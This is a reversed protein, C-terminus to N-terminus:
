GGALVGGAGEGGEECGGTGGDETEGLGGVVENREGGLVLAHQLDGLGRHQARQLNSIRRSIRKIRAMPRPLPSM